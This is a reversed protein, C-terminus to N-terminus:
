GPAINFAVGQETPSRQGYEAPVFPGESSAILRYTGPMVDEFLFRGDRDSTATRHSDARLRPRPTVPRDDAQADEVNLQVEANALPEATGLKVVIGEISAHPEQVPLGIGAALAILAMLLM